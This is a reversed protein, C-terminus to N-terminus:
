VDKNKIVKNEEIKMSFAVKKLYIESLRHRNGEKEKRKILLRFPRSNEENARCHTRWLSLAGRLGSM